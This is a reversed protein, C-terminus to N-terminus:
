SLCSELVSQHGGMGSGVEFLDPIQDDSDKAFHLLDLPDPDPDSDPNDEAANPKPVEM